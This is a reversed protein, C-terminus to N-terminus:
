RPENRSPLKKKKQRKNRDKDGKGWEIQKKTEKENKAFIAM